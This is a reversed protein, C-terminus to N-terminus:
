WGGCLKERWSVPTSETCSFKRVTGNPMLGFTVAESSGRLAFSVAGVDKCSEIIMKARTQMFAPSNLISDTSSGRMLLIQEIPRGSPADEYTRTADRRNYDITLNRGRSMRSAVAEITGACGDESDQAQVNPSFAFTNLAILGFGITAHSFFKRANLM